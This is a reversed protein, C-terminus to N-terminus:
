KALGARVLRILVDDLRSASVSVRTPMGGQIELLM